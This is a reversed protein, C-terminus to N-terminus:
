AVKLSLREFGIIANLSAITGDKIEFGYETLYDKLTGIEEMETFQIKIIEFFNDKAEEVTRGQAIFDLEPIQGFVLKGEAMIRNYYEIGHDKVERNLFLM